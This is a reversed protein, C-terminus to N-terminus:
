RVCGWGSPGSLAAGEVCQMGHSCLKGLRGDSCYHGCNALCPANGACYGQNCSAVGTCSAGSCSWNNFNLHTCSVASPSGALCSGVASGCACAPKPCAGGRVETVTDMCKRQSTSWRSASVYSCTSDCAATCRPQVKHSCNRIEPPCDPGCRKSCADGTASGSCSQGAYDGTGPTCTRVNNGEASGCTKTCKANCSWGSWKPPNGTPEEDKECEGTTKTGVANPNSNGCGDTQTFTKDKCVTSPSPTWSPTCSPPDEPPDEKPPPDEPPDEKPPPDNRPPPRQVGGGGCGKTGTANRTQRDMCSDYGSQTFSEGCAVTSPSPYWNTPASCGGGRPAPDRPSVETSCGVATNCSGNPSCSWVVINFADIRTPRSRSGRTCGGSSCVCYNCYKTGRVWRSRPPEAVTPRGSCGEPTTTAAARTQQICNHTNCSQGAPPPCKQSLGSLDGQWPKTEWGTCACTKTGEVEGDPHSETGGCENTSTRTPTFMTGKCVTAPDTWPGWEPEKGAVTAKNDDCTLGDQTSSLVYTQERGCVPEPAEEVRNDCDDTCHLGATGGCTKECSGVKTRGEVHGYRECNKYAFPGRGPKCTQWKEGTLTEGCITRPCVQQVAVGDVLCDDFLQLDCTGRGKITRSQEDGGCENTRTQAWEEDKCLGDPPPPSWALWKAPDCAQQTEPDEGDTPDGGDDEDTPDDGNTGPDDPTVKAITVKALGAGAPPNMWYRLWTWTDSWNNAGSSGGLLLPRDLDGWGSAARIEVVDGIAYPPAPYVATPSIRLVGDKGFHIIKPDRPCGSNRVHKVIFGNHKGEGCHEKKEPSDASASAFPTSAVFLAASLLGLCFLKM